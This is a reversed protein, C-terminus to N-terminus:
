IQSSLNHGITSALEHCWADLRDLQRGMMLREQESIELQKSISDQWNVINNLTEKIEEMRREFDMFQEQIAVFQSEMYNDQQELKKDIGDFRKDIAEFKDSFDGLIKLVKEEFDESYKKTPM